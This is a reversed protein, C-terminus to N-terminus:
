ITPETHSSARPWYLITVLAGSVILLYVNFAYASFTAEQVSLLGLIMGILALLYAPRDETEPALWAKRVTPLAAAADGLISLVIATVPDGTMAWLALAALACTGCVYDFPGLRWSGKHVVFSAIVVCGPSLGVSMVVLTSIGVGSRLQAAGAILPVFAWLLWTVRNPTAEGKLIARVYSLGGVFNIVAGAIAFSAHM